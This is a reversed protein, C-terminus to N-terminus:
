RALFGGDIPIVAGTIYDSAESALFIIIGELDEPTGWRGAPIRATVQPYRIADQKLDDNMQTNMYGPAIANVQIGHGAWENSLSKTLQAIGAKSVAYATANFGVLFSLMSGTSIIKGQGQAIMLPGALKALQFAVTVNLELVRDWSDLPLDLCSKRDHMGVNNVLINLKGNLAEMAALFTRNLDQRDLLNGQIAHVKYGQRKLAGTVDDIDDAIDVIAVEAGAKCLGTVLGLGLGRSGGTVIAKKGTLDFKKM